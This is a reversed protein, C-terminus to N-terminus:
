THKNLRKVQTWSIAVLLEKRGQPGCIGTWPIRWALISSHTATCEELPDKSRPISGMDRVVGANAPINKVM